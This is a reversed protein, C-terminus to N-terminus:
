LVPLRRRLGTPGEALEVRLEPVADAVARRLARQVEPRVHTGGPDLLLRDGGVSTIQAEAAAVGIHDKAAALAAEARVDPPDPHLGHLVLVEAVQPDILLARLVPEPDDLSETLIAVIRSLAEGHTDLLGAVLARAPAVVTPDAQELATLAAEVEGAADPGTVVDTHAGVAPDTGQPAM